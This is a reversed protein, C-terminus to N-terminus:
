RISEDAVSGPEFVRNERLYLVELRRVPLGRLELRRAMGHPGAAMAFMICFGPAAPNDLASATAAMFISCLM